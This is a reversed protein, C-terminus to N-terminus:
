NLVSDILDETDILGEWWSIVPTTELEEKFENEYKYLENEWYDLIDADIDTNIIKKFDSSLVLTPYDKKLKEINFDEM